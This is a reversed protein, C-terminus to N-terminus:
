ENIEYMNTNEEGNEASFSGKKIKILMQRHEWSFLSLKIIKLIFYRCYRKYERKGLFFNRFSVLIASM